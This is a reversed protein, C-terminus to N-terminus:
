RNEINNTLVLKKPKLSAVPHGIHTNEQQKIIPLQYDAFLEQAEKLTRAKKYRLSEDAGNINVKPKSKGSKTIQYYNTLQAPNKKPVYIINQTAVLLSSRYESIDKGYLEDVIPKARYTKRVEKYSEYGPGSEFETTRYLLGILHQTTDVSGIYYTEGRPYIKAKRYYCDQEENGNLVKQYEIVEYDFRNLSGIIHITGKENAFVIEREKYENGPRIDDYIASVYEYNALSALLESIVHDNITNLKEEEICDLEAVFACNHKKFLYALYSERTLMPFSNLLYWKNIEENTQLNQPFAPIKTKRFYEINNVM